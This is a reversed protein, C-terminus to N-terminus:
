NTKIVKEAAVLLQTKLYYGCSEPFDDSYICGLMLEFVKPEIDTISLNTQPLNENFM